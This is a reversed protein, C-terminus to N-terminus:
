FSLSLDLGVRFLVPFYKELDDQITIVEGLYLVGTRFGFTVDSAPKYLFSILGEQGIFSDDNGDNLVLTSSVPGPTTRLITTGRLETTVNESPNFAWFVGLTTINGLEFVEVYGQGSVASIPVYQRMSDMDLSSSSAYYDVRDWSDGTSYILDVGLASTRGPYVTAEVRGIGALISTDGYSGSQGVATLRYSLSSTLFGNFVAELYQSDMKETGDLMDGSQHLDQQALLSLTLNQQYFGPLAWTLKEIMRPATFSGPHSGALDNVSLNLNSANENVLGTYGAQLDLSSGNLGMGLMIGDVSHSVVLMGPDQLIQRGARYYYNDMRGFINLERVTPYLVTSKGFYGLELTNLAVGYQFDAEYVLSADAKINVLDNWSGNLWLNMSDATTLSFVTGQMEPAEGNLNLSGGWIYDFAALPSVLIIILVILLTIQKNM